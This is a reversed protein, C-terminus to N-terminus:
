TAALMAHVVLWALFVIWAVTLLLGVAILAKSWRRVFRFMVRRGDSGADSYWLM